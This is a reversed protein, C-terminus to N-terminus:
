FIIIITNEAIFELAPNIRTGLVATFYWYWHSVTAVM